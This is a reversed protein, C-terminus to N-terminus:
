VLDHTALLLPINLEKLVMSMEINVSVLNLRESKSIYLLSHPGPKRAEQM